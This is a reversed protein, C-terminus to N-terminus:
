VKSEQEKKEPPPDGSNKEENKGPKDKKEEPKEKKEEPKDKKEGPKHKKKKIEKTKHDVEDNLHKNKKKLGGVKVKLEPPKGSEDERFIEDEFRDTTADMADGIKMGRVEKSFDSVGRRFEEDEPGDPVSMGVVRDYMNLRYEVSSAGDLTVTSVPAAYSSVGGGILAIVLVAAAVRAFGSIRASAKPKVEEHRLEAETMDLIQGRQYGKDRIAHYKGSEDLVAAKNQKIKVVAYRM